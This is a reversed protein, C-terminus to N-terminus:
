ERRVPTWGDEFRARLILTLVAGYSKVGEEVRNARLYSDYVRWSATRLWPLQGREMRAVVANIDRRPGDELAQALRTREEPGSEGVIQWYLSLWASYQAEVSGRLCTLFGVFSADSEEAYGALHAWEHAAVFPIEWPLLDPNGIVELAFPDVMGDVGSWRFYYGYLSSKLRGPVAAPAESLLGQVQAFATRLANDTHPDTHWGGDHAPGHLANLREVAVLGLRVADAVTPTPRDLVLRESMPVRRYNFGWVMLFVLYGAAVATLVGALTKVLPRWQRLRWAARIGRVVVVIVLLGAGITLLDFLAFPVLNSVPTLARQIRPYIGISFWREVTAPDIPALAAVLAVLVIVVQAVRSVMSTNDGGHM